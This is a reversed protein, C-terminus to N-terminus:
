ALGILGWVKQAVFERFEDNCFEEDNNFRIMVGKCQPVFESFYDYMNSMYYFNEIPGIDKVTSEQFHQEDICNKNIIVKDLNRMYLNVVEPNLQIYNLVSFDEPISMNVHSNHTLADIINIGNLIDYNVVRMKILNKKNTGGETFVDLHTEYTDVFLQIQILGQVTEHMVSIDSYFSHVTRHCHLLAKLINSYKIHDM